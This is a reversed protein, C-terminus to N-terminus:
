ETPVGSVDDVCIGSIQHTAEHNTVIGATQGNQNAKTPNESM